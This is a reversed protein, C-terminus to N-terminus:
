QFVFKRVITNNGQRVVLLYIGQKLGKSELDIRMEFPSAGISTISTEYVKNGLLNCVNVEIPEKVLNQFQINLKGTSPNPYVQLNKKDYKADSIGTYLSRVSDVYVFTPLLGDDTVKLLPLGSNQGIWKYEVTERYIPIGFGLSDIYISDYQSVESRVRLTEFSGFPTNLTGWGDVHNKRKKWGGSYGLGPIDIGFSAQSSDVNGYNMPFRYIIDPENYKNPIPIGNLTVGLGVSRFDSNQNKYYEYVDTVEFGPIQDFEIQKKALNASLFFLIQYVWPTEQVTVFTDVRQMLPTLGTFDWNYSEGTATFDIGSVDLATSLRITDGAQPMDNDDITIQSYLITPIWFFLLLFRFLHM